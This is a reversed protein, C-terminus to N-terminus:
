QDTKESFHLEQGYRGPRIRGHDFVIGGNVITYIPWGTLQQGSFPSWGARSFIEEDMVPRYSKLDVLTLDADFGEAILGKNSIRYLRAPGASMWEQVQKLTCRGKVMETLMLPLSTEVGPTGSPSLPYPQLKDEITHPAHDTAVIDIIKDQLGQWLASSNEPERLPPNMQGKSGLRSYDNTSPFLHNPVVECSVQPPKETRLFNVEVSTSLHLIHLRRGYKKSLSVAKKTALLATEPDRITSHIDYPSLRNATGFESNSGLFMETRQRIRAEDEAHVAILRNGNSFITELLKDDDVLLDGTSSGMFIKIGCTPHVTNLAELNDRSAGVFFGFNAVSCKAARALKWNLEKQNTTAPNCNPMELYSTVGGRVAARSGSGLDEKYIGGPERFHVQPDIVGPLLLHGKADVTERGEGGISSSIKEIKGKNCAVDNISTTGEPHLINANLIILDFM